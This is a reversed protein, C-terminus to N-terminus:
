LAVERAVVVDFPRPARLIRETEGRILRRLIRPRRSTGIVLIAAREREAIEILATAVDDAREYVLTGGSESVLEAMRNVREDRRRQVFVAVWGLGLHRALRRGHILVARATPLHAPLAIAISDASVARSHGSLAPFTR